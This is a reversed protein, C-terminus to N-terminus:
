LPILDSDIRRYSNNTGNPWRVGVDYDDLDTVVGVVGLPNATVTTDWRTDASLRVRQGVKLDANTSNTSGFGKDGRETVKLENVRTFGVTFVPIIMGQAIRDGNEVRVPDSGDNRLKVRLPGTYDSDIVGVANSLRTDHKFGHGSRSYIMMVHGDPVEFALGTDFIEATGPQIVAGAICAIDFCAAGDTAYVPMTAREDLLKININM